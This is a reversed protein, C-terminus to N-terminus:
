TTRPSPSSQSSALNQFTLAQPLANRETHLTGFWRPAGPLALNKALRAKGLATVDPRREGISCL